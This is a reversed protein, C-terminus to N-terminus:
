VDVQLVKMINSMAATGTIFEKNELCMEQTQLLYVMVRTRQKKESWTIKLSLKIM